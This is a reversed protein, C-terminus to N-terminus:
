RLQNALKKLKPIVHKKIKAYGNWGAGSANVGYGKAPQLEESALIIGQPLKYIFLAGSSNAVYMNEYGGVQAANNSRLYVYILYDANTKNVNNIDRESIESSRIKCKVVQLGRQLLESQIQNTLQTPSSYSGANIFTVALAVTNMKKINIDLYELSINPFAEIGKFQTKDIQVRMVTTRYEPNVEEINIKIEGNRNSVAKNRAIGEGEIFDIKVILDEIPYKEGYEDEYEVRILPQVSLVGKVDYYISGATEKLYIGSLFTSIKDNIYAHVEEPAAGSHLSDIIPLGNFFDNLFQTALLWDKIAEIYHRRTFKKEGNRIYNRITSKKREIDKEVNTKYVNKDIYVMIALHDRIPFDIEYDTYQVENLLQDTYTDTQINIKDDITEQGAKTASIVTSQIKTKIKVKIKRSLDNLAMTKAKSLAEGVDGNEIKVIGEGWYLNKNGKFQKFYKQAEIYRNKYTINRGIRTSDVQSYIPTLFLILVVFIKKLLKLSYDRM